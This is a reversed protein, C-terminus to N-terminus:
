KNLNYNLAVGSKLSSEKGKINGWNMGFAKEENEPNQYFMKAPKFGIYFEESNATLSEIDYKLFLDHLDKLFSQQLNGDKDTSCWFINEKLKGDLCSNWLFGKTM